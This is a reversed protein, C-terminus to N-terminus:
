SLDHRLAGEEIDFIGQQQGDVIYDLFRQIPISAPIEVAVLGVFQNHESICGLKALQERVATSAKPDSLLLRFTSNGSAQRLNRFFLDGGVEDVEVEDDSSIGMVYFPINDIKFKGNGIPKAWLSETDAPPYGSGDKTLKFIVRSNTDVFLREILAESRTPKARAQNRLIQTILTANEAPTRQM